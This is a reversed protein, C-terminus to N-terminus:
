HRDRLDQRAGSVSRNGPNRGASNGAFVSGARVRLRREVPPDARRRSKAAIIRPIIEESLYSWAAADRFFTTVNILVTNFLRTFEDPHVELFDTYSGYGTVGLAQMRKDMRRRLSARKYGTFDFGRSRKLYELLSEFEPDPDQPEAAGDLADETEDDDAAGDKFASAGDKLASAGDKLALASSELAEAPASAGDKLPEAM